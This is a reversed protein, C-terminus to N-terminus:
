TVPGSPWGSPVTTGDPILFNQRFRDEVLHAIASRYQEPDEFDDFHPVHFIAEAVQEATLRITRDFKEVLGSIAPSPGSWPVVPATPVVQAHPRSREDAVPGFGVLDGEKWKTFIRYWPRDVSGNLLGLVGITQDGNPDNAIVFKRSDGLARNSCVARYTMVDEVAEYDLKLAENLADVVPGLPGRDQEREPAQAPAPPGEVDRALADLLGPSPRPDTSGFGKEGRDSPPLDRDGYFVLRTRPVPLVWLQAIADGVNIVRSPAGPGISALMVRVIGRYGSDLLGGLRLTGDGNELVFGLPHISESGLGSRGMLLGGFGSPIALKVGTSIITSRAGVTAGEAAFLDYAADSEHARMPARASPWALQYPMNWTTEGVTLM